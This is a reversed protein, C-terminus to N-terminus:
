RAAGHRLRKWPLRVVHLTYIGGDPTSLYMGENEKTFDEVISGLEEKEVNRYTLGNMRLDDRRRKM